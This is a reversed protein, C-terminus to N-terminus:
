RRARELERARKALTPGAAVVEAALAARTLLHTGPRIIIVVDLGRPFLEPHLRFVERVLRKARNRVVSPGVKRSAVVGLRPLRAETRPTQGSPLGPPEGLTVPRAPPKPTEGMTVPGLAASDGLSKGLALLLLLHRTTVRVPSDQIRLFEPRKRIRQARPLRYRASLAPSVPRAPPSPTEGM